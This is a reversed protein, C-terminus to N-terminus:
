SKAMKRFYFHVPMVQSQPLLQCELLHSSRKIYKELEDDIRSPCEPVDEEESMEERISPSPSVDFRGSILADDITPLTEEQLSEVPAPKIVDGSEDAKGFACEFREVCERNHSSTDNDCGKRGPTAGIKLMRRYTIYVRRSKQKAEPTSDVFPIPLSEIDLLEVCRPDELDRLAKEAALHLPCTVERPM